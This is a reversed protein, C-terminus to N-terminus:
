VGGDFEAAAAVADEIMGICRSEVGDGIRKDYNRYCIVDVAARYRLGSKLPLRKM